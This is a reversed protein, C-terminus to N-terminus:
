KAQELCGEHIRVEAQSRLSRVWARALQEAREEKILIEIEAAAQALPEPERGLARESPEYVDEYYQRVDEPSVEVAGGFRLDITKLYRIMEELYPRIAEEKFGFAALMGHWKGAPFRRKWRALLAQAEAETVEINERIVDIVVRRDIAEELTQRLTRRSSTEEAGPGAALAQLVRVDTLTLARGNVEAAICDVVQPGAPGLCLVLILPTTMLPRAINM